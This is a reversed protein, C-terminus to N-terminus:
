YHNLFHLNAMAHALHSFGTEPDNDEGAWWAHLHRLAASYVRSWDMGKEWNREGYKAAGRNLVALLRNHSEVSLLHEPLKGDDFKKGEDPFEVKAGPTYWPTPGLYSESYRSTM